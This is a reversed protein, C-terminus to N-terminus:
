APVDTYKAVSSPVDVLGTAKFHGNINAAKAGIVVAVAPDDSFGPALLQSPVLGFRPFVEEVLELGTRSGTSADIGGIVDAKTVKSVDPKAPTESQAPATHKAPDFVNICVIPAVGYRSLYVSAAEHLTLGTEDEGPAGLQATFEAMSFILLPKNVPRETGEPLNHVPATGIIVPLSVDVRVPAVIGTATEEWYVGHNYM